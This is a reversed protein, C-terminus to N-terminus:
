AEIIIDLDDLEGELRGVLDFMQNLWDHSGKSGASHSFSSLSTAGDASPRSSTKESWVKDLYPTSSPQDASGTRELVIIVLIIVIFM